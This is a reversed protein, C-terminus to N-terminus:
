ITENGEPRGSKNGSLRIGAIFTVCKAIVAEDKLIRTHGLGKTRYLEAKPYVKILELPHKMDVEEDNEDHILLLDIEDKLHRIFHLSTFEDFTKGSKKIIFQKFRNGTQWTGGIAKLYTGIIEDGITPSAIHIIRNLRLGNMVAYLVAAGGFSHAIVGAPAGFTGVLTKLLQEFEFIDTRTGGSKGHAPGDFGVVRFDAKNLPEIFKRFQTARGAWGHVVLVVPGNGWAYCAIKKGNIDLFSREARRAAEEEKPPVSYNLPTFFLRIFFRGALVPSLRELKPFFWRVARLLFPTKSKKL